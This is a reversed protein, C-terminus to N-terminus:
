PTYDEFEWHGLRAVKEAVEVWTGGEAAEVWKRLWENVARRAFSDVDVVVHHRADFLGGQRRAEAALWEPSCVIVQFAEEGPGDSPGVLMYALYMFEAPDDTSLDTVDDDMVRLLKARM